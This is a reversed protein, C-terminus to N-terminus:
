ISILFFNVNWIMFLFLEMFHQRYSRKSSEWACSELLIEKIQLIMMVNELYETLFIFYYHIRMTKRQKGRTIAICSFANYKLVLHKLLKHTASITCLFGLLVYEPEWIQPRFYNMKGRHSIDCVQFSYRAESFKVWTIYTSRWLHLIKNRTM